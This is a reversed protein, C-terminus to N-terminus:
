AAARRANPGSQPAAPKTAVLTPQEGDSIEVRNRGNAKARYLAVDAAALLMAIDAGSKASAIGVSVTANLTCDAVTVGAAAFAQRVREAAIRADAASGPILAAFEEGGLRGVIDTTRLSASATAAFLQLAEDGIGHGFRDNVSKFHDLDFMLASVPERRRARREIMEQAAGLFGRRNLVKTLEDTWAADKHLRVVHEKALMLAIFATGVSYLMTELVFLAVWGGSLTMTGRDAPLLGVLPLPFLFVAGHLMPVLLAPWRRRLSRRRERGLEAAILFTYVAVIVSSLMVRGAPWHAFEPLLCAALWIAAGGILPSVLVRRGHFIRAANWVMGCAAFLFANAIGTPPPLSIFRELSWVAGSCGAILYAAGWWALARVRDQMWVFLLLLGLMATIGTTVVHLTTVDLAIPMETTSMVRAKGAPERRDSGTALYVM